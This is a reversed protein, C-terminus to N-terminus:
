LGQISLHFRGYFLSVLSEAFTNEFKKIENLVAKWLLIYLLESVIVSSTKGNEVLIQHKSVNALFKVLM